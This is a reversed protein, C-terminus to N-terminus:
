RGGALLRATATGPATPDVAVALVHDADGAALIRAATAEAAHEPSGIALTTVLPGTLGWVIGLHGLATSPVNQFLLQRAVPRGRAVADDIAAQTAVDGRTAALVLATRRGAEPPVPPAGYHAGLCREAAALLLPAFASAEFRPVPPPPEGPSGPPPWRGESRVTM